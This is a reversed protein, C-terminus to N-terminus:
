RMKELLLLSDEEINRETVEIVRICDKDLNNCVSICYSNRIFTNIQDKLKNKFVDFSNLPTALGNGTYKIYAEKRTWVEYFRQNCEFESSVVYKYENSTYYNEAIKLDMDKIHEIDIGVTSSSLAIAIANRTHSINFELEPFQELFPKGTKSRKIIIENSHIHLTQSVIIRLLLESYLSLKKDISYKYKYIIQRKEYTVYSLLSNFISDSIHENLECYYVKLLKEM